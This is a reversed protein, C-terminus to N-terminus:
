PQLAKQFGPDALIQRLTMHTIEQTDIKSTGLVACIARKEFLVAGSPAFLRADMSWQQPSLWLLQTGLYVAKEARNAKEALVRQLSDFGPGLALTPRVPTIGSAKLEQEIADTVHEWTTFSPDLEARNNQTLSDITPCVYVKKTTTLKIVGFRNQAAQYRPPKYGTSECGAALLLLLPAVFLFSKINKLM